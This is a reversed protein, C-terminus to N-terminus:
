CSPQAPGADQRPPGHEQAAPEQAAPEQEPANPGREPPPLSARGTRAPRRPEIVDPAVPTGGPFSSRATRSLRSRRELRAAAAPALVLAMLGATARPGAAPLGDLAARRAAWPRGQAVLGIARYFQLKGRLARIGARAAAAEAASGASDLAASLVIMGHQATTVPDFSISGPRVRHIATPHSTMTLRAGTRLMRIWLDWDESHLSRFGGASEYLDRSFLAFNVFNSRLLAHLQGPRGPVGSPGSLGIGPYWQLERASILGPAARHAAAMTELHDPLLVDDADLMALLPASSSQIALHRAVGPGQNRELRIVRIPLRDQWRRALEVTNDASCDDAVVVASPAATQGALSALAQDLHASSNFAPIIVAIGPVGALASDREQTVGEPGGLSPRLNPECFSALV